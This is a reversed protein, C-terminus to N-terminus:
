DTASITQASERHALQSGTGSLDKEPKMEELSPNQLTGKALTNNLDFRNDEPEVVQDALAIVFGARGVAAQRIKKDRLENLICFTKRQEVDGLGLEGKANVGIVCPQQSDKDVLMAMTPGIAATSVSFSNVREPVKICLSQKVQKDHLIGWLYVRDMDDIAANLNWCFIKKFKVDQDTLNKNAQEGTKFNKIKTFNFLKLSRKDPNVGLQYKDNAGTSLLYGETTLVLSHSDGLAVQDVRHKGGLDVREPKFARDTCDGGLGLQGHLALGFMYLGNDRTVLASHRAGAAILADKQSAPLELEVPSKMNQSRSLGLAGFKGQGWAFVKDGEEALALCHDNGAQVDVIFHSQLREILCPLQKKLPLNGEEFPADLGLQGHQNSGM